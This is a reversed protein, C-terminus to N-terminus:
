QNGLEYEARWQTLLDRAENDSINDFDDSRSASIVVTAMKEQDQEALNWFDQQLRFRNISSVVGENAVLSGDATKTSWGMNSDGYWRGM